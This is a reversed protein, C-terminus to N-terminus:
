RGEEEPVPVDPAAEAAASPLGVTGGNIQTNIWRIVDQLQTQHVHVLRHDALAHVGVNLGVWAAIALVVALLSPYLWQRATLAPPASSTEDPM